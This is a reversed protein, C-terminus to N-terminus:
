RLASHLLLLVITIHLICYARSPSSQFEVAIIVQEIADKCCHCSVVNM